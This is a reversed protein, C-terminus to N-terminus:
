TINCSWGDDFEVVRLTPDNVQYGFVTAGDTNELKIFFDLKGYFITIRFGFYM